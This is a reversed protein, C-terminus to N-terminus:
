ESIEEPEEAIIAVPEPVVPAAPSPVIPEPASPVVTEGLPARSVQYCVLLVVALTIGGITLLLKDSSPM